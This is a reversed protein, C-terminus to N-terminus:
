KSIGEKMHETVSNQFRRIEIGEPYQYGIDGDYELIAQPKIRRIMEDTGDKWVKM